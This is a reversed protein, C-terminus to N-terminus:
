GQCNRGRRLYFLQQRRKPRELGEVQDLVTGRPEGLAIGETLVHVDVNCVLHAGPGQRQQTSGQSESQETWVPRGEMPHTPSATQLPVRCLPSPGKGENRARELSQGM